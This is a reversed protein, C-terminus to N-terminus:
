ENAGVLIFPAWFYPHDHAVTSKFGEQVEVHSSNELMWKKAEHLAEGKKMGDRLNSYFRNMFMPTSKDAVNWLSVLVSPTGAYMFSRTLGILGEGELREGLGTKCASLTVLDANLKLNLIEDMQLFGDNGAEREQPTVGAQSLVLSPQFWAGGTRDCVLGHVAFHVYRYLSMDLEKVRAEKANERVNFAAGGLDMGLARGISKAEEETHPLGEFSLSRCDDLMTGPGAAGEPGAASGGAAYVPNAFVVLPQRPPGVAGRGSQDEIATRLVGASPTYAFSYKNLLFSSARREPDPSTLLADFPVFHLAADPVVYVTTAGALCTEVPRFIKEYIWHAAGADLERDRTLSLRLARVMGSLEEESTALPVACFGQKTVVFAVAGRSNIVYEVLAQRENLLEGQVQELTVPRPNTLESFRPFARAIEEEAKRGEALAEERQQRYEAILSQDRIPEPKATERRLGDDAAVARANAEALRKVLESPAGIQALARSEALLDLLGRGKGREAYEFAQRRYDKGAGSAPLKLLLNVLREYAFLKSTFFAIRSEVGRQGGAIDERITEIDKVAAEYHKLADQPQGLEELCIAIGLNMRWSWEPNIIARNIELGKQYNTLADTFESRVQHSAAINILLGAMNRLNGYREHIALAERLLVRGQQYEGRRLLIEAENSRVDAVGLLNKEQRFVVLAKEFHRQAEEYRGMRMYLVGTNLMLSGFREFQEPREFLGSLREFYELTRGYQGMNFYTLGINMFTNAIFTNLGVRGQGGGEDSKTFREYLQLATNYFNLADEYRGLKDMVVGVSNYVHGMRRDDKVMQFHNLAKYFSELARDYRGQDRHIIGASLLADGREAVYEDGNYVDFVRGYYELADEARGAKEFLEAVKTLVEGRLELPAEAKQLLEELQRFSDRAEQWQQLDVFEEGMQLLLELLKAPDLYREKGEVTLLRRYYEVAKEVQGLSRYVGAINVMTIAEGRADKGERRIALAQLLLDLAKEPMKQSSYIVAINTLNEATGGTDGIRQRIALSEKQLRLAEQSEGRNQLVTAIANLAKAEETVDGLRAYAAAAQRWVKLATEPDEALAELGETAQEDAAVKERKQEPTWSRYLSVENTLMQKNFVASHVRAIRDALEFSKRAEEDRGEVVSSVYSKLLMNVCTKASERQGKVLERLASEDPAGFQEVCGTVYDAQGLATAVNCLLLLALVYFCRQLILRLSKM